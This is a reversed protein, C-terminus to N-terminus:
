IISILDDHCAQRCLPAPQLATARAPRSPRTNGDAAALSSRNVTRVESSSCVSRLCGPCIIHLSHSAARMQWLALKCPVNALECAAHKFTALATVRLGVDWQSGTNPRRTFGIVARVACHCKM